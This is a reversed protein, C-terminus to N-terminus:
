SFNSEQLTEELELEEFVEDDSFSEILDKVSNAM